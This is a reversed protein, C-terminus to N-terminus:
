KDSADEKENARIIFYMELINVQLEWQNYKRVMFDVFDKRDRVKKVKSWLEVCEWFLSLQELNGLYHNKIDEVTVKM